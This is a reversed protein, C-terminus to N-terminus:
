LKIITKNISPCLCQFKSPNPRLLMPSLILLQAMCATTCHKSCSYSQMNRRLVKSKGLLPPYVLVFCKMKMLSRKWSKIIHLLKDEIADKKPSYPMRKGPTPRGCPTLPPQTTVRNNSSQSQTELLHSPTKWKM